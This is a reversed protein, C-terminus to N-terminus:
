VHGRIRDCSREEGGFPCEYKCERGGWGYVWRGRM